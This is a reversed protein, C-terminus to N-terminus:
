KLVFSSLMCITISYGGLFLYFLNPFVPGITKLINQGKRQHYIVYRNIKFAINNKTNKSLCFLLM